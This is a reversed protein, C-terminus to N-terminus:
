YSYVIIIITGVEGDGSGGGGELDSDDGVLISALRGAATRVGRTM